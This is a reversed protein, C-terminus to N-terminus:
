RDCTEWIGITDAPCRDASPYKMGRRTYNKARIVQRFFWRSRHLYNMRTMSEVPLKSWFATWRLDPLIQSCGPVGSM